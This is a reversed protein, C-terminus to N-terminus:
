GKLMLALLISLALLSTAVSFILCLEMNTRKEIWGVSSDADAKLVTLRQSSSNYHNKSVNRLNIPLEKADSINAELSSMDDDPATCFEPILIPPVPRAIGYPQKKAVASTQFEMTKAAEQMPKVIGVIRAKTLNSSEQAMMLTSKSEKSLRSMRAHDLLHPPLIGIDPASTLDIPKSPDMGTGVSSVSNSRRLPIKNQIQTSVRQPPPDVVRPPDERTWVSPMRRLDHFSSASSSSDSDDFWPSGSSFSSSGTSSKTASNKPILQPTSTPRVANKSTEFKVHSSTHKRKHNSSGPSFEDRSSISYDSLHFSSEEELSLVSSDVSSQEKRYRNERDPAKVHGIHAARNQIHKQRGTKM